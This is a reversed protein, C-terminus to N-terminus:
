NERRYEKPMSWQNEHNNEEKVAQAACASVCGYLDTKHKWEQFDKDNQVLWQVTAYMRTPLNDERFADSMGDNLAAFIANRVPLKEVYLNHRIFRRFFFLYIRDLLSM